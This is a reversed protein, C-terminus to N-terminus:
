KKLAALRERLYHPVCNEANPRGLMDDIMTAHKKNPYKNDKWIVAELHGANGLKVTLNELLVVPHRCVGRREAGNALDIFNKREPGHLEVKLIMRGFPGGGPVFGDATFDFLDDHGTYDTVSVEAFDRDKLM